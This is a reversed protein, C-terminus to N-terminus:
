GSDEQSGRFARRSTYADFWRQVNAYRSFDYGAFTGMGLVSAVNRDAISFEDGPLGIM